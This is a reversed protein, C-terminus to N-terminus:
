PPSLYLLLLPPATDITLEADRGSAEVPEEDTVPKSESRADASRIARRSRTGVERQNTRARITIPLAVKKSANLAKDIANTSGIRTGSQCMVAGSTPMM